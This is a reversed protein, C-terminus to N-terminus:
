PEVQEVCAPYFHSESEFVAKCFDHLHATHKTVPSWLMMVASPIFLNKCGVLAVPSSYLGKAAWIGM